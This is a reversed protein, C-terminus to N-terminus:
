RETARRRENNRKHAQVFAVAMTQQLLAPVRNASGTYQIEGLMPPTRRGGGGGADDRGGDGIIGCGGSGVYWDCRIEDVGSQVAVLTSHHCIYDWDASRLVSQLQSM